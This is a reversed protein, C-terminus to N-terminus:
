NILDTSSLADVIDSVTEINTLEIEKIEFGNDGLLTLFDSIDYASMHLDEALLDEEHIDEPEVGIHAALIEKVQDILNKPIHEEKKIKGMDIM